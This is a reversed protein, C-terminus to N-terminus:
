SLKFHLRLFTSAATITGINAPLAGSVSAQSYGIPAQNAAPTATGASVLFGLSPPMNGNNTTRVTPATTPASQTAGGLWYWGRTLVLPSGLTIEQVTASDGAIQGADILIAGPLGAGTDAYVGLRVKSGAEGVTTVEAGIRAISLTQPCFWPHLRLQNNTPAGTSSVPHPFIYTGSPFAFRPIATGTGVWGTTGTGTLKEYVWGNTTDRYVSGPTATAAGEPDGSGELFLSTSFKWGSTQTSDPTFLSGDGGVAQRAVTDAATGIILDGKADVITKLIADDGPTWVGSIFNNSRHDETVTGATVITGGFFNGTTSIRDVDDILLSSGGTAGTARNVAVLLDTTAGAANGVVIDSITTGAGGSPNTLAVNNGVLETRLCNFAYIGIRNLTGSASGARVISNNGILVNKGYDCSIGYHGSDTVTNGTIAVQDAYRLGNSTGAQIYIGRDTATKSMTIVNGNVTIGSAKDTATALAKVYVAYANGAPSGMRITNNNVTLGSLSTAGDTDVFVGFGDAASGDGIGSMINHSVNVDKLGSRPYAFWSVGGVKAGNITNYNITTDQWDYPKIARDGINEFTNHHINIGTFPQGGVARHSGVGSTTDSTTDHFYCGTVEIDECPANDYPGFWPFAGAGNMVDFQLMEAGSSNDFEVNRFLAKKTGNIEINHWSGALNTIRTDSAEFNTVHGMGIITCNQAYTGANGDWTGGSIKIDHAADFGGTVGDAKNLLMNDASSGRLFTTHPALWLCTNSGITLPTDILYADGFAIVTGGGVADVADLSVQIATSAPTTGDAVTPDVISLGAGVYTAPLAAITDEASDLRTDLADTVPAVIDDAIRTEVVGPLEGTTTDAGVLKKVM